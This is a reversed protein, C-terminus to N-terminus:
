AAGKEGVDGFRQLELRAHHTQRFAMIYFHESDTFRYDLSALGSREFEQLDEASAIERLRRKHSM